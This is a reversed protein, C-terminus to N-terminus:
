ATSLAIKALRDPDFDLVRAWLDGPVTFEVIEADDLTFYDAEDAPASPGFAYLIIAAADSDISRQFQYRGPDLGATIDVPTETLDIHALQQRRTAPQPAPVPLPTPTSTQQAAENVPVGIVGARRVKWRTLIGAAGCLRFAAAHNVQREMSINGVELKTIPGTRAQVLYGAYMEVAQDRVPQPAMPAYQEVMAAATAGLRQIRTDDLEAPLVQRLCETAKQLAVPTSPWPSLTVAM